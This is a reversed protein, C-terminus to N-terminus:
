LTPAPPGPNLTKLAAKVKDIEARVHASAAGTEFKRIQEQDWVWLADLYKAKRIHRRLALLQLRPPDGILRLADRVRLPFPAAVASMYLLLKANSAAM